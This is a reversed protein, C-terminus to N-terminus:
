TTTLFEFTSGTLWGRSMKHHEPRGDPSLRRWLGALRTLAATCHVDALDQAESTGLAATRALVASAAVLEAAIRGSTVLFEEDAFLEAQPSKTAEACTQAFWRTQEVVADLHVQNRPALDLGATDTACEGPVPREGRYYATLLLQAVQSDLQFDVNGAMRFGRADRLAREAPLVPAGRRRKSAATELGEAGMLAVTRDALKWATRTLVNKAVFRELWRDTIGGGILSWRALSDMAYVDAMARSVMRQIRDYEGLPRGDIMRRNVFSRSWELCNRAVALAPAGTFYIRGLFAISNIMAPLRLQGEGGSLVHEKPVRVGDFSLAGNPLGNSGIFEVVSDVSFGESATDVFCVGIGGDLTASVALLDAVPGNGTYLKDGRLVYDDGDLTATMTPLRNNQGAQDTDGFGSLAGGRIRDRVMDRLPGEPLAPHLAGVGVGAQIAIIQGVPVSKAAAAAVVRLVNYPSLAAGGLEGAFAVTLLGERRLADILGDPLERTADLADPDPVHETVFAEARAVWVDGVARDAADQEPFGGLLGTDLRGTLLGTELSEVVM